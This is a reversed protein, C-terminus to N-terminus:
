EPSTNRQFSGNHLQAANQNFAASYWAFNDESMLLLGM